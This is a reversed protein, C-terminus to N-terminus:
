RTERGRLHAPTKPVKALEAQLDAVQKELEAIRQAATLPDLLPPAPEPQPTRAVIEAQQAKLERLNATIDPGCWRDPSALWNCDINNEDM